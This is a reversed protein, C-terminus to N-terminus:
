AALRRELRRARAGAPPHTALLRQRWPVKAGQGQLEVRRLLDVLDRGYGLDCAVQDSRYEEARELAAAFPPLVPILLLWPYYQAAYLLAVVPLVILAFLAAAGVLSVGLRSTLGGGPRSGEGILFALPRAFRLVLSLMRIALLRAVGFLWLLIRAPLSYWYILLSVVSHWGLHHGLEHALIAAVQRSRLGLVQRTVAVTRGAYASANLEDADSIWLQYRDAPRGAREMVAAWAPEVVARDAATLPRLGFVARAVLSEFPQWLTLAGSALWGAFVVISGAANPVV